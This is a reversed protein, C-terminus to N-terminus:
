MFQEKYIEVLSHQNFYKLQQIIDSSKLFRIPIKKYKKEVESILGSAEEDYETSSYFEIKRSKNFLEMEALWINIRPISKKIWDEIEKKQVKNGPAVAKGEICVISEPRSAVVDIEARDGKSTQIKSRLECEFGQICYIRAIIFDFVVSRLNLSAGEIKNLKKIIEFLEDPNDKIAKTANDISKILSKLLDANEKGLLTKPSAIIVGRKRLENIAKKEFYDAVILVIFPRINKQNKLSELKYFFPKLLDVTIKKNLIIDGVVFGNQIKGSKFKVIGNVYSPGVIDWAFVGYGPNEERIKIKNSSGIGLNSLWSKLISLVIGEVVFTAQQISPIDAMGHLCVLDDDSGSKNIHALNLETLQDLAKQYLLHKPSYIAATGSAKAFMSLPLAGGVTKLGILARGAASNTEMLIASVIDSFKSTGLQGEYYYIMEKNPLKIDELRKVPHRARSLRKRAAEPSVKDIKILEQVLESSRYPRKELLAEITNM